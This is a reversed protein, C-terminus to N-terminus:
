KLEQLHKVIANLRGWFKRPVERNLWAGASLNGNTKYQKIYEKAWLIMESRKKPFELVNNSKRTAQEQVM